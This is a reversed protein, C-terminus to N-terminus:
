YRYGVACYETNKADYIEAADYLIHSSIKERTKKKNRETANPKNDLNNQRANLKNEETIQSRLQNPAYALM